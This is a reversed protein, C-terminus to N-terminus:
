SRCRLKCVLAHHIRSCGKDRFTHLAAVEIVGGQWQAGGPCRVKGGAGGGERAPSRKKKLHCHLSGGSLHLQRQYPVLLAVAIGGRFQLEERLIQSGTFRFEEMADPGVEPSVRRAATAGFVAYM